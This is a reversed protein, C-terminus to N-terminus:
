DEYEEEDDNYEKKKRGRSMQKKLDPWGYWCTSFFGGLFGGMIAIRGRKPSDKYDPPLAPDIINITALDNAERLRANEYQTSMVEYKKAAVTLARQLRAYEIGLEPLQGASLATDGNKSDSKRQEEELRHLEKEMGELQSQALKLRPNDSKLYSKLSTIEINKAAIRDRLVAISNILARTQDTMALVGSSKQYEAMANEADSLEMQADALQNEYFQRVQRSSELNMAWIKKQLEEIFSMVIDAARQPDEDRYSLTIIGSMNDENTGLGNLVAQRAPLRYEWENEEMMNFKDIVADVVSNSKLIALMTGGPTAKAPLSVGMMSALGGYQALLSSGGGGGGAPAIKSEAKYIFPLWFAYGLAAVACFFAILFIRWKKKWVASFLELLDIEVEEDPMNIRPSQVYIYQPQPQTTPLNNNNEM